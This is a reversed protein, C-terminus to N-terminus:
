YNGLFSFEPLEEALSCIMRSNEEDHLNGVFDLYFLYDFQSHPLPRSEIKTLDFGHSSFRCLVTYLSGPRNPLSFCLSVKDATETIIAKKSIVIFRTCNDDNNQINKDLVKLGYSDASEKTCIAGWNIRKEAAVTQAAVSTSSVKQTTFGNESLFLSCQALGQEHSLVHEINSIDTQPIACLCHEIPLEIEGVIYYRYKLILDYVRSVSGASSNEVPLVGFDCINNEVKGFVKDFNKQLVVEANPFIKMAALHSNSGEGGLCAVKLDQSDTCLTREANKIIDRLPNNGNIITYQLDRSLEMVNGYLLRAYHGYEGGLREINSLVEEEREANLVPSGTKIKSEAVKVSLDMRRKFLAVIQEDINDIEERISKLEMM